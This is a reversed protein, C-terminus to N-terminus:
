ELPAGVLPEHVVLVEAGVAVHVVQARLALVGLHDPVVRPPLRPVRDVEGQPEGRLVAVRVNLERHGLVALLADRHRGIALVDCGTLALTQAILQGLKGDGVVLVRHGAQVSIQQEIILSMIGYFGEPRIFFNVGNKPTIKKFKPEISHLFKLGEKYIKQKM